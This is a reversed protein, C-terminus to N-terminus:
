MPTALCLPRAVAAALAVPMSPRGGAATVGRSLRRELAARTRPLKLGDTYLPLSAGRLTVLRPLRRARHGVQDRQRHCVVVGDVGGRGAWMALACTAAQTFPQYEVSPATHSTPLPLCAATEDLSM